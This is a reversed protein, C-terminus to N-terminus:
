GEKIETGPGLGWSKLIEIEEAASMAKKFKAGSQGSVRKQCSPWTRHRYVLGGLNSLYSFAEKKKEGNGKMEPLATNTPVNLLDIGYHELDGRYLQIYEKKSFAVAIRDCRENGPTGMHGRSYLWEIKGQAGRAAVVQSIDEWLDRNSVEGGEATQWNKRRWGFIWQTIGRILYTSDTYFHIPMKLHAVARLAELAATMEMRNNTTSSEGAGLELVQNDPFLLVSGWGGPGPNGSCAGDSYILIYDRPKQM